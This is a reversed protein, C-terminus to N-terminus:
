FSHSYERGKWSYKFMNATFGIYIVYVPYIVQLTFFVSVNFRNKQFRSYTLLLVFECIVKTLIVALLIENFNILVLGLAVLWFIQFVFVSVAAFKALWSTNSKWKAAWRRRQDVFTSMSSQASTTATANYDRVFRIAKSGYKHVVKRMLFEDDGSAIHDNGDYGAVEFFVSRRYALNAGNCMIPQGINALSASSGILSAFEMQQLQEFFTQGDQFRVPGMVMQTSEDFFKNITAIWAPSFQCDADTTIIMEGKAAKVGTTIASKKGIGDNLIVKINPLNMSDILSAVEDDSHDDVVIVEFQKYSQRSLSRLLESINQRENRIPIIVSFLHQRNNPQLRPRKWWAALLMLVLLSYVSIFIISATM